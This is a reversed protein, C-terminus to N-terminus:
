RNKSCNHLHMLGQNHSYDVRNKGACFLKQQIKYKYSQFLVHSHINEDSAVDGHSLQCTNICHNKIVLSIIISEHVSPNEKHTNNKM